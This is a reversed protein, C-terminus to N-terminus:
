NNNILHYRLPIIFFLGTGLIVAMTSFKLAKYEDSNKMLHIFKDEDDYSHKIDKKKKLFIILIIFKNRAASM